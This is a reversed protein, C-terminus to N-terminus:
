VRLLARPAGLDWPIKVARRLWERAESTKGQSWLLKAVALLVRPGHECKPARVGKAELRPRAELFGAESRLARPRVGCRPSLARPSNGTGGGCLSWGCAPRPEKPEEPSVEGFHASSPGAAWDEGRARPAFAVPTHLPSM